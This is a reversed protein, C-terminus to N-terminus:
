YAISPFWVGTPEEYPGMSMLQLVKVSRYGRRLAATFLDGNRSPLLFRRSPEPLSSAAAQQLDLLDGVTEAAGFGFFGPVMFATLRDGDFRGFPTAGFSPGMQIMGALENKRSM